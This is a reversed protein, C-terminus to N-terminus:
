DERISNLFEDYSNFMAKSNKFAALSEEYNGCLKMRNSFITNNMDDRNEWLFFYAPLKEKEPNEKFRKRYEKIILVAEQYQQAKRKDWYTDLDCIVKAPNGSVVCNSPIKGKVVSGAGIVVNDGIETNMMIISNIGIFVNDGIKVPGVGGLVEGYKRKGVSWSYDHNIIHVGHTINVHSGIQIMWPFHEDIYTNNPAFITVDTGIMAGKERLYSIYSEQSAKHKFLLKRAISMIGM